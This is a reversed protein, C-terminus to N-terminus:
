TRMCTVYICVDSKLNVMYVFLAVGAIARASDGNVCLLQFLFIVSTLPNMRFSVAGVQTVTNLLL